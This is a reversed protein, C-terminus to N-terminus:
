TPCTVRCLYNSDASQSVEAGSGKMNLNDYQWTVKPRVNKLSLKASLEDTDKCMIASKTQPSEYRFTM